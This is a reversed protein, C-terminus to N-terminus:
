AEKYQPIFGVPHHMGMLDFSRNAPACIERIKKSAIPFLGQKTGEFLMTYQPPHATSQVEQLQATM